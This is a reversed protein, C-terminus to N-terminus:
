NDGLDTVAPTLGKRSSAVNRNMQRAPKDSTSDAAPWTANRNMQKGNTNDEKKGKCRGGREGAGKCDKVHTEWSSQGAIM